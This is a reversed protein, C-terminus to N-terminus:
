QQKRSRTSLAGNQGAASPLWVCSPTKCPRESAVQTNLLSLLHSLCQPSLVGGTRPPLRSPPLNTLGATRTRGSARWVSSAASHPHRGRGRARAHTHTRAHAHVVVM